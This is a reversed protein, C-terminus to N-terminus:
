SHFILFVTPVKNLVIKAKKWETLSKTIIQEESGTVDKAVCLLTNGSCSNLVEQFLKENRYPTEMFIQTQRQKQADLELKKLAKIRESSDIPLYGHFTFSQGSFGSAMLAMLISSPGVLPIVRIGKEHAYGVALAGPDAVGPCGAEAIIGADHGHLVKELQFAVEQHSTKKSLEVFTIEEIPKALNIESSLKNIESLFRRATRVNEVLFYDLRCIVEIVRPTIVKHVTDASITTPILYLAGKKAKM